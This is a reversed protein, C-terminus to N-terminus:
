RQFHIFSISHYIILFILLHFFIIKLPSKLRVTTVPSTPHPADLEGAVDVAEPLAAPLLSSSSTIATASSYALM